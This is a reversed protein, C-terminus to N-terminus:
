HYLVVSIDKIGIRETETVAPNLLKEGEWANIWRQKNTAYKEEKIIENFEASLCVEPNIQHNEQEKLNVQM